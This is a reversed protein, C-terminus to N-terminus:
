NESDSFFTGIQLLKFIYNGDSNIKVGFITTVVM